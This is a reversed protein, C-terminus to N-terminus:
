EHPTEDLLHQVLTKWGDARRHGKVEGRAIIQSREPTGDGVLVQYRYDSVDALQSINTLVVILSM